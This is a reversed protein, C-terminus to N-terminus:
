NGSDDNGPYWANPWRAFRIAGTSCQLFHVMVCPILGALRRQKSFFLAFCKAQRKTQNRGAGIM